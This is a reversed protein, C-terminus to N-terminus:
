YSYFLHHLDERVQLSIIRLLDIAAGAHGASWEYIHKKLDPCIRLPGAFNTVAENFEEITFLLGIPDFDDRPDKERPRLTVRQQDHLLMNAYTGEHPHASPTGYSCFLAIHFPYSQVEKFLGAWLRLERYTDQADDFLLYIAKGQPLEVM